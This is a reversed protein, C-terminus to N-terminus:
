VEITRNMLRPLLIDRAEKLKQNQSLLLSIMNMIPEVKNNFELINNVNPKIVKLEKLFSARFFDRAAGTRKMLLERMVDQLSFIKFLNYVSFENLTRIAWQNQNLLSPLDKELVVGYKGISAGVMIILFDLEEVLYKSHNNILDNSLYIPDNMQIFFSTSYDRTRLIPTGENKYDESKFACGNNLSYLDSFIVKDWGV